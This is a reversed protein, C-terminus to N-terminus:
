HATWEDQEFLQASPALKKISYYCRTEVVHRTQELKKREYHEALIALPNKKQPIKHFTKMLCKLAIGATTRKINRTAWKLTITKSECTVAGVNSCINSMQSCM